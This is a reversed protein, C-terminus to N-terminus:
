VEFASYDCSGGTEMICNFYEQEDFIGDGDSDPNVPSTEGPDVIGNLNIDEGRIQTGNSGVRCLGDCLGDHDSDIHNPNTETMDVKGNRNKDELGDVIGDGDSDRRTPSTKLFFLEIGDSLGDGDTDAIAPDTGKDKEIYSNVGDGDADIGVPLPGESMVYCTSGDKIIEVQHRVRGRNFETENLREQTLEEQRYLTFIGKRKALEEAARVEREKESLFIRGPFGRGEMLRMTEYDEPFCYGWYRINEGSRGFLVTRKIDGTNVPIHILVNTHPPVTAGKEMKDTTITEWQTLGLM